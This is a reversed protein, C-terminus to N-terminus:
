TSIGALRAAGTRQVSFTLQTQNDSVHLVKQPYIKERAGGGIDVMVEVVPKCGLNHNITWTTAPSSQTHNYYRAKFASM